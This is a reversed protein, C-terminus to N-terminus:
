NKLWSQYLLIGFKKLTFFSMCRITIAVKFVWAILGDYWMTCTNFYYSSCKCIYRGYLVANINIHNYKSIKGGHISASNVCKDICWILIPRLLLEYYCFLCNFQCLALVFKTRSYIIFQGPLNLKWVYSWNELVSM